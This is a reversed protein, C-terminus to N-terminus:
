IGIKESGEANRLGTIIKQSATTLDTELGWFENIPQEVYNSRTSMWSTQDSRIMDYIFKSQDYKQYCCKKLKKGSGCLCKDNRGINRGNRNRFEILQSCYTVYNDYIDVDAEYFFVEKKVTYSKYTGDQYKMITGVPGCVTTKCDKVEDLEEKHMAICKNYSNQVIIRNIALVDVEELDYIADPIIPKSLSLNGNYYVVYYKASLPVLILCNSFGITRNSFNAIKGKCNLSATSVYQDGLALKEDSSRIVFFSYDSVITTALKNLYRRDLIRKLMNNIVSEKCFNNHDSFECLTAGSRYYFLLVLPLAVEVLAKATTIDGNDLIAIVDKVMPIYEDEVTKFAKELTNGELLPHEYTYKSSMTTSIGEPYIRRNNLNFEYVFKKNQSFLKLLGQSIYHQVVVNLKEKNEM